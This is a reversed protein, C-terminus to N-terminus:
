CFSRDNTGVVQLELQWNRLVGVASNGLWFGTKRELSIKFGLTTSYDLPCQFLGVAYLGPGGAQEPNSRLGQVLEELGLTMLLPQENILRSQYERSVLVELLNRLNGCHM